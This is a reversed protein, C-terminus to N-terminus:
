GQKVLCEWGGKRQAGEGWGNGGTSKGEGAEERGWGKGGRGRGKGVGERRWGKGGGGRGEEVGERRWGKGGGDRGEEVGERGQGKGKRERGKGGRGWDKERRGRLVALLLLQAPSRPVLSSRFQLTCTHSLAFNVSRLGLEALDEKTLYELVDSLSLQEAVFQCSLFFSTEYVACLTRQTFSFTSSRVKLIVGGDVKCDKLWQVLEPDETGNTDSFTM